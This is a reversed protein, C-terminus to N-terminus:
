EQRTLEKAYGSWSFHTLIVGNEPTFLIVENTNPLEGQLYIDFDYPAYLLSRNRLDETLDADLYITGEGVDDGKWPIIPNLYEYDVQYTNAEEATVVCKIRYDFGQPFLVKDPAQRGEAYWTGEVDWDFTKDGERREIMLWCFAEPDFFYDVEIVTRISLYPFDETVTVYHTEACSDWDTEIYEEHAPLGYLLSVAEEVSESSESKTPTISLDHLSHSEYEWGAAAFQYEATILAEFTFDEGQGTVSMTAVCRGKEPSIETSVISYESHKAARLLDTDHEVVDKQIQGEDVPDIEWSEMDDPEAKQLIWGGQDFYEYDLKYSFSFRTENMKGSARVYVLDTKDRKDTRRKLISAKDYELGKVPLDKSENLDQIIEKETKPSKLCGSLLVCLLVLGWMLSWRKLM